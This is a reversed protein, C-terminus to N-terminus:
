SRTYNSCCIPLFDHESLIVRMSKSTSLSTLCTNKKRIEALVANSLRQALFTVREYNDQADLALMHWADESYTDLIATRAVPSLDFQDGDQILLDM